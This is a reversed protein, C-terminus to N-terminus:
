SLPYWREGWHNLESSLVGVTCKAPSSDWSCPFGPFTSPSITGASLLGMLLLSLLPQALWDVGNVTRMFVWPTTLILGRLKECQLLSCGYGRTSRVAIISISSSILCVPLPTVVLSAQSLVKRVHAKIFELYKYNQWWVFIACIIGSCSSKDALVNNGLYLYISLNRHWYIYVKRCRKQLQFLLVHVHNFFWATNLLLCYIINTDRRGLGETRMVSAVLDM